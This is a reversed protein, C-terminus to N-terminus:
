LLSEDDPHRIFPFGPYEGRMWHLHTVCDEHHVHNSSSARIGSKNLFEYEKTDLCLIKGSVTGLAYLTGISPHSRIVSVCPVPVCLSPVSDPGYCRYLSFFLLSSEHSCWSKHEDASAFGLVLMSSHSNWEVASPVFKEDANEQTVNKTVNSQGTQYEPSPTPPYIEHLLVATANRVPMLRKLAHWEKENELSEHIQSVTIMSARKMFELLGTLSPIREPVVNQVSREITQSSHSDVEPCQTADDTTAFTETQTAASSTNPNTKCNPSITGGNSQPCTTFANKSFSNSSSTM